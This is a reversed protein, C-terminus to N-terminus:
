EKVRNYEYDRGGMYFEQSSKKRGRFIKKGFHIGILGITEVVCISIYYLEDSLRITTGYGDEYLFRISDRFVEFFKKNKYTM